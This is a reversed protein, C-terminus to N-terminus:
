WLNVNAQLEVYGNRKLLSINSPAMRLTDTGAATEFRFYAVGMPIPPLSMTNSVNIWVPLCVNAWLIPFCPQVSTANVTVLIANQGASYAVNGTANLMSNFSLGCWQADVRGTLSVQAPTIGFNLQTVTATWDSDCICGWFGCGWAYHGTLQLPQIRGALENFTSEYVRVTGDQAALPAATLALSFVFWGIGLIRLHTRSMNFGWTM